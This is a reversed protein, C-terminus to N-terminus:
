SRELFSVIREILDPRDIWPWHGGDEVELLEANPLREAYLRGFRPQTYPDRAGWVVLAPCTIKDLGRGAEELARPAASRYLKLIARKTGRDMYRWIMDVHWDPMPRRDGTAQRLALATVARTSTANFLEGVLPPRWFYRAVWHWRYGPLLSVSNSLVLREVREPRRQAEILALGGWDHMCLRYREIELVDLFRGFFGVLGYMSYDFDRPRASRGWGPLDLAIAPGSMQALFPLWEESHTPNGHVFVTPSGEGPLRRYFTRVGDVEVHEESLGPIAGPASLKAGAAVAALM